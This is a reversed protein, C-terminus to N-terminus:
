KNITLFKKYNTNSMEFYRGTDIDQMIHKITGAPTTTQKIHKINVGGTIPSTPKIGGQLMGSHLKPYEYMKIVDYVKELVEVDKECYEIMEMLANRDNLLCVDEWLGSRTKIKNEGVNFFHAIYSLKYSNLSFLKQSVKMTDYQKYKPLMPIRHHAARGRLWRIDFNDGNHAVILDAEQLVDKFQDILFKDNQNRDWALTYVEDEGAWKYSVCIVAREKIIQEPTIRVKYGSRWFWGENWSTEIDYFLIRATKNKIKNELERKEYTVERIAQKCRKVSCQFGRETLINRLRKGGEKLYGPKNRLFEKIEETEIKAM